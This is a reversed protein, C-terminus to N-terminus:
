SGYTGVKERASRRAVLSDKERLVKSVDNYDSALSDSELDLRGVGDVINLRLNLILFANRRVLLAQDEGPFLEFVTASERIVIDLLLGGKM